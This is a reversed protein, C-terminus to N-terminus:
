ASELLHAIQAHGFVKHLVKHIAVVLLIPIALVVAFVPHLMLTVRAGNFLVTGHRRVDGLLGFSCKM